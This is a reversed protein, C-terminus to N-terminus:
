QASRASKAKNKLWKLFIFMANAMGVYGGKVLRYLLREDSKTTYFNKLDYERLATMVEEKTLSESIVLTHGKRVKPKNLHEIHVLIARHIAKVLEKILARIRRSEILQHHLYNIEHRLSYIDMEARKLEYQCNILEKSKRDIVDKVGGESIIPKALMTEVYSFNEVLEKKEASVYYENIGDFWAKIYRQKKLLPRWDKNVHNAEICIVWPRYREWDNSALVEYEYGEVDVKLFHIDDVKHEALIRSLPQIKVEYEVFQRTHESPDREYTAQMETSFTSLGNGRPYERFKLAGEEKSVGVNVNIDRQRQEELKEWLSRIPEVNIGRWGKEYFYKTVSDHNPDNAGIDVYFGKKIDRLFGSLTIDERNQAYSVRYDM